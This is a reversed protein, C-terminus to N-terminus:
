QVVLIAPQPYVKGDIKIDVTPWDDTRTIVEFHDKYVIM